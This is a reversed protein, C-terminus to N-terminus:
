VTNSLLLNFEGVQIRHLVKGTNRSEVYTQHCSVTILCTSIVPVMLMTIPLSLDVLNRPIMIQDNARPYGYFIFFLSTFIMIFQNTFAFLLQMSYLANLKRGIACLESHLNQLQKFINGNQPQSTSIALSNNIARYHQRLIQVYTSIELIQTLCVIPPLYFVLWLEFCQYFQKRKCLILNFHFFYIVWLTCILYFNIRLFLRSARYNVRTKLDDFKQSIENFENLFKIFKSKNIFNTILHVFLLIVYSYMGVIKALKTIAIDRRQTPTPYNEIALYVFYTLTSTVYVIIFYTMNHTKTNNQFDRLSGVYLGLIQCIRLLPQITVFLNGDPLM